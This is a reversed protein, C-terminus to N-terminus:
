KIRDRWARLDQDVHPPHNGLDLWAVALPHEYCTYSSTSIQQRLYGYLQEIDRRANADAKAHRSLALVAANTTWDVPGLAITQLARRDIHGIVLAAAIQVRQVWEFADMKPPPPCAHVMLCGLQTIWAPGMQQAIPAARAHWQDLNYPMAALEGIQPVVRPDPPPVNPRPNTGDYAWLVFDVQGKAVRPDPNQIGSVAIQIANGGM